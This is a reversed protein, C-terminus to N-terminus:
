SKVWHSLEELSTQVQRDGLFGSCMTQLVPPAWPPVKLFSNGNLNLSTLTTLLQLDATPLICSLNM